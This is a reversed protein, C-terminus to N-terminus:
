LEIRCVLRSICLEIHIGQVIFEYVRCGFSDTKSTKQDLIHHIFPDHILMNHHFAEPRTNPYKRSLWHVHNEIEKALESSIVNKIIAYGDRKYQKKIKQKIM